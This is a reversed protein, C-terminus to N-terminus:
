YAGINVIKGDNLIVIWKAQGSGDLKSLQIKFMAQHVSSKNNNGSDSIIDITFWGLLAEREIESVLNIFQQSIHRNKM